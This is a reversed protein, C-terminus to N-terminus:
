VPGLKCKKVAVPMESVGQGDENSISPRRKLSALLESPLIMPRSSRSPAPPSPAKATPKAKPPTEPVPELHASACPMKVSSNSADDGDSDPEDSDSDMPAKFEDM